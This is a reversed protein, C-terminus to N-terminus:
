LFTNVKTGGDFSLGTLFGDQLTMARIISINKGKKLLRKSYARQGRLASAYLSVM